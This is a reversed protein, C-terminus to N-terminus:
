LLSTLQALQMSLVGQMSNLEQLAQNARSFQDTLYAEREMLREEINDIDDDITRITSELREITGKIPGELSDTFNELLREMQETYGLTVSVEGYTGTTTGSFQIMLGKADGESATLVDGNGTAAYVASDATNTFTGAVTVGTDSVGATGFGTGGSDIDSTVAITIEGGKDVSSFVLNSGSKSVSIDVEDAALQNNITEVITDIDMGSTLNVISSSSGLTLTLVEDVGLTSGIENPSTVTAAEPVTTIDVQYTGALTDSSVGLYDIKAHTATGLAIFLGKLDDFNDELNDDLVSSDIELTGDNKLEIGASALNTLSSSLGEISRSVTQALQLQINRILVDGALPGAQGVAESYEFQQNIFEYAENYSDVFKQINGKVSDTDDGVTLTVNSTSANKLNLTVGEIVNEVKNSSSTLSLGNVILSADLEETSAINHTRSLAFPTTGDSLTLTNNTITIANESGSDESTITLRYGSGDYVISANAEAGSANIARKLGELTNNTSDITITTTTSGIQLDFSGTGIASTSSAFGTDSAFNDYLALREVEIMYSGTSASSSATATLITDDSVSTTRASFSEPDNLTDLTSLLSSLNSNLKNYADIQAQVDSKKEDLRRVPEREVFMIQQVLGQVDLQGSSGLATLGGM